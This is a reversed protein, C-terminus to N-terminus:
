RPRVGAADADTDADADAAVRAAQVAGRLVLTSPDGDPVVTCAAAHEALAHTRASAQAAELYGPYALTGGALVLRRPNVLNVLTAVGEGLARGAAEVVALVDADGRAARAAVEDAPLGLRRLIAAGSAVGDLTTTGTGDRVPISGLEGAWGDAGGHVRDGTTFGAAIGTGSVVVAVDREHPYAETVALLAARVDNLLCAPVDGDLVRPRWGSVAPLVDAVVVGQGDPSILGPCAIGIGRVGPVADVFDAIADDLEAPGCDRGTPVRRQDVVVGDPGTARCLMKTGGIDVGVHM